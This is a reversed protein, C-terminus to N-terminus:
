NKVPDGLLDLIEKVEAIYADMPVIGEDNRLHDYLRKKGDSGLLMEGLKAVQAPNDEMAVLVDVLEMNNIVEPGIDATFGSKTRVM